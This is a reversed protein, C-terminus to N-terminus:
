ARAASAACMLGSIMCRMADIPEAAISMRGCLPATMVNSAIQPSVCLCDYKSRKMTPLRVANVALTSTSTKYRVTPTNQHIGQAAAAEERQGDRQGERQGGRM